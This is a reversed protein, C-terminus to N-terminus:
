EKELVKLLTGMKKRIAYRVGGIIADTNTILALIDEGAAAIIVKGKQFELLYQTLSGLLFDKGIIESSGIANAVIGGIADLDVEIRSASDIVFGDRGILAVTTVGEIDLFETIAQKLDEAM